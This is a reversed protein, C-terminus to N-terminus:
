ECAYSLCCTQVTMSNNCNYGPDTVLVQGTHEAIIDIDARKAAPSNNEEQTIGTNIQRQTQCPSGYHILLWGAGQISSLM